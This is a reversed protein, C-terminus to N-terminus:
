VFVCFMGRHRTTVHSLCSLSLPLLLTYFIFYFKTIRYFIDTTSLNLTFCKFFYLLWSRLVQIVRINESKATQFNVLNKLKTAFKRMQTLHMKETYIKNTKRNM